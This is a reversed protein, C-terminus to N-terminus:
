LHVQLQITNQKMKSENTIQGNQNTYMHMYFVVRLNANSTYSRFIFIFVLVEVIIALDSINQSEDQSHPIPLDKGSLGCACSFTFCLLRVSDNWLCLVDWRRLTPGDVPIWFKRDVRSLEGGYWRCCSFVLPVAHRWHLSGKADLYVTLPWDFMGCISMSWITALAGLLM